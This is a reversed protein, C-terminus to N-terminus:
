LTFRLNLNIFVNRPLGPYYYRPATGSFGSANILVSSAYKKNFLNNIGGNLDIKM